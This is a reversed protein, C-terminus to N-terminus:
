SLLDPDDAIPRQTEEVGADGDRPGRDPVGSRMEAPGADPARAGAVGGVGENVRWLRETSSGRASPQGAVFPRNVLWVQETSGGRMRKPVRHSDGQKPNLMSFIGGLTSWEVQALLGTLRHRRPLM